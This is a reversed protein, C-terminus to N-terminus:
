AKDIPLVALSRLDEWSKPRGTSLIEANCYRPFVWQNAFRIVKEDLSEFAAVIISQLCEAQRAWGARELTERNLEGMYAM